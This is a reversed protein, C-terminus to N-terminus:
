PLINHKQLRRLLVDKTGDVPLAHQKCLSRMEAVLLRRPPPPPSTKVPPPTITVAPPSPQATTVVPPPQQALWQHVHNQQRLSLGTSPPTPPPSPGSLPLEMERDLIVVLDNTATRPKSSADSSLFIERESPEDM